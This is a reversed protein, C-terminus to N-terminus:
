FLKYITAGVGVITGVIYAGLRLFKSWDRPKPTLEEKCSPIIEDKIIEIMKENAATRRMHEALQLNQEADMIKIENIDTKVDKVDDRMERLLDLIIGHEEKNNSM